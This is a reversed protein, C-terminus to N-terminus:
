GERAHDGIVGSGLPRGDGRREDEDHRAEGAAAREADHLGRPRVKPVVADDDHRLLVRRRAHRVLRHEQGAGEAVREAEGAGPDVRPADRARGRADRPGRGPSTIRTGCSASAVPAPATSAPRRVRVGTTTISWPLAITKRVANKQRSRIDRDRSWSRIRSGSRRAESRISCRMVIRPASRTSRGLRSATSRKAASPTGRSRIARYWTGSSRSRNWGGSGSRRRAM